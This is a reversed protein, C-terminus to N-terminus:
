KILTIKRSINFEPSTLKLLYIGSAYQSADWKITYNGAFYQNDILNEVVEGKLNYVVLKLQTDIPIGFGVLTIPNFPNPYAPQLAFSHPQTIDEGQAIRGLDENTVEIIENFTEGDSTMGIMSFEGDFSDSRGLSGDNELEFTFLENLGAIISQGEMGYILIHFSLGLEDIVFDFDMEDIQSSKSVGKIKKGLPANYKIESGLQPSESYIKISVNFESSSIEDISQSFYVPGAIYEQLGGELILNVLLIIDLINLEDDENLDSAWFTYSDVTEGM